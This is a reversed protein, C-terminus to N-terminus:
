NGNVLKYMTDTLLKLIEKNSINPYKSKILSLLDEKDSSTVDKYINLKVYTFGNLEMIRKVEEKQQENAPVFADSVWEDSPEDSVSNDYGDVDYLSVFYFSNDPDVKKFGVYVKDKKSALLQGEEADDITWAHLPLNREKDNILFTAENDDLDMCEYVKGVIGTIVYVKKTSEEVIYQGVKFKPVIMGYLWCYGSESIAKSIIKYEEETAKRFTDVFFHEKDTVINVEKGLNISFSSTFTEDDDLNNFVCIITGEENKSTLFDGAKWIYTKLARTVKSELLEESEFSEPLNDTLHDIFDQKYIM